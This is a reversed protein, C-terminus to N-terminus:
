DKDLSILISIIGMIPYGIAILVFGLGFYPAGLIGIIAGVIIGFDNVEM